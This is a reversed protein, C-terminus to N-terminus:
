KQHSFHRNESALQEILCYAIACDVEDSLSIHARLQKESFLKTLEGHTQLQPKGLEDPLVSVSQWGMAGRIGTGLAKALAEKAAFRSALYHLGRETDRARREQFLLVEAPSLLRQALRLGQRAYATRMRAIQCIDVGIGFVSVGAEPFSPPLTPSSPPTLM